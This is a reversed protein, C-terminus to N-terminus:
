GEPDIDERIYKRNKPKNNKYRKEKFGTELKNENYCKVM